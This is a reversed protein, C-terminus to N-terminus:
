TTCIVLWSMTIWHYIRNSHYCCHLVIDPCDTLIQINDDTPLSLLTSVRQELHYVHHVLNSNHVSLIDSASQQHPTTMAM